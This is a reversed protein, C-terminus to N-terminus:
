KKLEPYQFKYFLEVEFVARLSNLQDKDLTKKNTVGVIVKAAENEPYFIIRGFVEKESFVLKTKENQM